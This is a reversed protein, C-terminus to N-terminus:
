VTPEAHQSAVVVSVIDRECRACQITMVDGRYRVWTPSDVHCSPHIWMDEDEHTKNCGPVGCCIPPRELDERYIPM